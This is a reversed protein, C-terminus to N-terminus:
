GLKDKLAMGLTAYQRRLLEIAVNHMLANKAEDSMLQEMTRNNGDHFLLGHAGQVDLSISDFGSGDSDGSGARDIQQRLAKQFSNISLDKQMYNPTDVNAIDQALLEHRAETFRIVQELAPGSGSKLVRDIFM